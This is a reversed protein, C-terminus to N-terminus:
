LKPFRGFFINESVAMESMLKLEQHILVIGYGYGSIPSQFIGKQRRFIIEGETQPFTGALINSLTSKGSGNTGILAHIEGTRIDLSVDNLAQTGPFIKDIHKMECIIENM